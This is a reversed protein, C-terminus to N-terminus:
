RASGGGHYLATFHAPLKPLWSGAPCRADLRLARSPLRASPPATLMPPSQTAPPKSRRCPPRWGARCAPVQATLWLAQRGPRLPARACHRGAGGHVAGDQAAQGGRRHPRGGEPGSDRECVGCGAEQPGPGALPLCRLWPRRQAVFALFRAGATHQSSVSSDQPAWTISINPTGPVHQGGVAALPRCGWMCHLLILVGGKLGLTLLLPPCLVHAYRHGYTLVQRGIDEAVVARSELNMLVSSVAAAKARELEAEPVGKAVAQPLTPTPPM